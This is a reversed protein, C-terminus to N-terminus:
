ASEAAHGAHLYTPAQAAARPARAHIGSEPLDQLALLPTNSHALLYSAVSGAPRASDCGAGHASLILITARESEAVALISQCKNSHRTVATRVLLRHDERELQAQLRELYRKANVALRGALTQALKMDDAATLVATSLPEEVVHVLVMRAGKASAIRAAAPLVSEARISGDLPVLVCPQDEATAGVRAVFVSTRGAGLVQQATSGLARGAPERDGGSAVILLDASMERAVDVIREAPRGQELRIEVARALSRSMAAELHELHTLTEQRSIEWGIADGTHAGAHARPPPMVHLLSVNSGFTRALALAHPVCIESSKAGDVCVLIRHPRPTTESRYSWTAAAGM